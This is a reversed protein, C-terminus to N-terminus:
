ESLVKNGDVFYRTVKNEKEITALRIVGGSSNDRSIALKVLKTAFDIAEELEMNPKYHADCYGYIFLSGSGGIHIDSPIVTGDIAVKYIQFEKDFGAVLLSAKFNSQNESIIRGILNAMKHVSFNTQELYAIKKIERSVVRGLFMTDAASGSRCALINPLLHDIKDSYHCAIFQGSTTRSDAALLIGDKYKFGVITTGTKEESFKM